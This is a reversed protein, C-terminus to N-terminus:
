FSLAQSFYPLLMAWCTSPISPYLHVVTEPQLRYETLKVVQITWVRLTCACSGYTKGSVRLIRQVDIWLIAEAKWNVSTCLLQTSCTCSVCPHLLPKEFTSCRKSLALSIVATCVDTKKCDTNLFRSNLNWQMNVTLPWILWEHHEAKPMFYCM